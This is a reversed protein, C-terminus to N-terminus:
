AAQKDTSSLAHSSLATSWDLLEAVGMDGKIRNVIWCVLHVNGVAYFGRSDIRDISPAYYDRVRDLKVRCDMPRGTLACLGGQSVWFRKVDQFRLTFEPTRDMRVASQWADRWLMHLAVDITGDGGSAVAECARCKESLLVMRGAQRIVRFRAPPFKYGCQVCRFNRPGTGRREPLLYREM